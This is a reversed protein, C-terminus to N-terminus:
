FSFLMGLLIIFVAFYEVRGCDSGSGVTPSKSPGTGGEEKAGDSAEVGDDVQAVVCQPVFVPSHSSGDWLSGDTENVCTLVLDREKCAQPSLEETQNFCAHWCYFQTDANCDNITVKDALLRPSLHHPKSCGLPYGQKSAGLWYSPDANM